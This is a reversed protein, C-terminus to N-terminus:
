PIVFSTKVRRWSNWRIGGSEPRFTPIGHFESLIWKAPAEAMKTKLELLNWCIGVPICHKYNNNNYLFYLADILISGHDECTDCLASFHAIYGMCWVPMILYVASIKYSVMETESEWVLRPM